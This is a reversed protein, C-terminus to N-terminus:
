KKNFYKETIKVFFIELLNLRLEAYVNRINHTISAYGM